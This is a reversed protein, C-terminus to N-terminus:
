IYFYLSFFFFVSAFKRLSLGTVHLTWPDQNYDFESNFLGQSIVQKFNFSVCLIGSEKDHSLLPSSSANPM